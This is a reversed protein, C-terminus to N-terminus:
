LYRLRRHPRASPESTALLRSQVPQYEQRHQSRLVSGRGSFRRAGVGNVGVFVIVYPRKSTTRGKRKADAIIDNSTKPTLRATLAADM